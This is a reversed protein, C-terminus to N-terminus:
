SSAAGIDAFEVEPVFSLFPKGNLPYFIVLNDPRYTTNEDTLKEVPSKKSEEEETKDIENELEYEEDYLSYEEEKNDLTNTTENMLFSTLVQFEKASRLGGESPRQFWQGSLDAINTLSHVDPQLNNSQKGSNWPWNPNGDIKSVISSDNYDKAKREEETATTTNKDPITTTPPVESSTTPSQTVKTTEPMPPLTVDSTDYENLGVKNTSPTNQTTSPPANTTTTIITTKTTIASDDTTEEEDVNISNSIEVAVPKSEGDIVWIMSSQNTSPPSTTNSEISGSVNSFHGQVSYKNNGNESEEDTLPAPLTPFHTVLPPDTVIDTLGGLTPPPNFNPPGYGISPAIADSLGNNNILDPKSTTSQTNQNSQFFTNSSPLLFVNQNGSPRESDQNPLQTIIPRKTSPTTTTITSPFILPSGNNSVSTTTTPTNISSSPYKSPSYPQNYSPNTSETSGDYPQNYPSNTSQTIGAFPQNYSPNTSETTGSYPPNYPSNTSQTIGAFPQNYSLNTSETTGSYPPNYPSNISQTIGAFPQNYSFNTPETTGAYNQNYPPNTSQMIGVYPRNTTTQFIVPNFPSPTNGDFSVSGVVQPKQGNISFPNLFSTPQSLGNHIISPRTQSNSSQSFHSIPENKYVLTEKNGGINQNNSNDYNNFSVANQAKNDKNNQIFIITDKSDSSPLHNDSFANNNPRENIANNNNNDYSSFSNSSPNKQSLFTPSPNQNSNTSLSSDFVFPRSTTTSGKSGFYYTNLNPSFIDNNSGKNSNPGSYIGSHQDVFPIKSSPLQINNNQSSSSYSDSIYNINNSGGSSSVGNNSSYSLNSEENPLTPQQNDSSVIPPDVQVFEHVGSNWQQEKGEQPLSSPSNYYNIVSYTPLSLPSATTSFSAYSSSQVFSGILPPPMYNPPGYGDIHAYPNLSSVTTASVSLPRFPSPSTNQYSGQNINNSFTSSISNQQNNISGSGSNSTYSVFLSNPQKPRLTTTLHSNVYNSSSSTSFSSFSSGGINILSSSYLPRYPKRTPHVQINPLGSSSISVPKQVHYQPGYYPKWGCSSTHHHTQHNNQHINNNIPNSPNPQVHYSPKGHTSYPRKPSRGKRFLHFFFGNGSQIATFFFIFGLLFKLEPHCKM